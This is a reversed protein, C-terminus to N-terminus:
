LDLIEKIIDEVSLSLHAKTIQVAKKGGVEAITAATAALIKAYDDTDKAHKKASRVVKAVLASMEEGMADLKEAETATEEEEGEEEAEEEPEGSGRKVIVFKDGKKAIKLGGSPIETAVTMMTAFLNKRFEEGGTEGTMEELMPALKEAVFNEAERCLKSIQNDKLM